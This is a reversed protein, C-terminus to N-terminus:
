QVPTIFNSLAHHLYTTHMFCEMVLSIIKLFIGIWNAIIVNKQWQYSRVHM